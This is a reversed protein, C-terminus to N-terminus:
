LALEAFRNYYGRSRSLDCHTSQVLEHTKQCVRLIDSDRACRVYTLYHHRSLESYLSGVAEKEIVTVLEKLNNVSGESVPANYEARLRCCWDAALATSEAVVDIALSIECGPTESCHQM